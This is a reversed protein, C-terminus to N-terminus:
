TFVGTCNLNPNLSVMKMVVEVEDITTLGLRNLGTDIKLHFEFPQQAIRAAEQVWELSIATVTIRLQSTLSLYQPAVYGLVLIPIDHSFKSRVALAEDLSAVGLWTAGASISAEAIELMGHGYGNGKVVAMLHVKEGIYEKLLRVNSDVASLNVDIWTPRFYANTTSTNKIITNYLNLNKSTFISAGYAMISMANIIWLLHFINSLM